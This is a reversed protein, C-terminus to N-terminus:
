RPLPDLGLDLRLKNSAEHARDRAKNALDIARDAVSVKPAKACARLDAEQAAEDRILAKVDAVSDDPYRIVGLGISFNHEVDALRRCYTKLDKLSTKNKYRQILDHRARDASLLVETYADTAAKRIEDQTPPASLPVCAWILREPLGPPRGSTGPPYLSGALFQYSQGTRAVVDGQPDLVEVESGNRRGTFDAPWGVPLNGSAPGVMATGYTPDVVLRGVQPEPYCGYVVDRPGTILQVSDPLQVPEPLIGCGVLCLALAALVAAVQKTM